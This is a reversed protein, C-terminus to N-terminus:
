KTALQLHACLDRHYAEYVYLAAIVQTPAATREFWDTVVSTVEKRGLIDCCLSNQRLITGEIRSRTAPIRWFIEPAAYNRYRPPVPFGLRALYPQVKRRAFRKVRDTQLRWNPTLIPMGTKQNPIKGFCALYKARLWNEHFAQKGRLESPLGQCFDFFAYDVFPKRVRLWSRFAAIWRNTSQPLKHEFLAFRAAAGDLQSVLENVRVLAESLEIGVQTKYFPMKDLAHRGTIVENFTPGSVADGIYGSLHVDLLGSQLSLTEMYKLDHLDILGDTHQIRKTRHGLWDPNQGSYLPHFVWTVGMVEAARQAYRADDCGPIGFTIATWSSTQPSAEALIARSDLGGSLLQGPRKAGGLRRQIAQQWLHHGKEILEEMPREPVPEIDSWHWYRRFTPSGDRITVVSAQPVMKVAKVNTRDGLRYGGFTVAERIADPDADAPVGPAMLVGRVGGAFAFGEPSHGWYLPLGGFRDNLLRLTRDEADWLVIQYEGDLERVTDLGHKLLIELLHRRFALTRTHDVDPVDILGGGAFAEGVMWLYYRGESSVAPAYAQEVPEKEPLELLGVSLGPISWCGWAQDAHVQLARGMGTVVSETGPHSERAPLWGCLLSM